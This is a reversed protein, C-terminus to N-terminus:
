WKILPIKRLTWKLLIIDVMFSLCQPVKLSNAFWGVFGVFSSLSVRGDPAAVSSLASTMYSTIDTVAYLFLSYLCTALWAMFAGVIFIQWGGITGGFAAALWGLLRAWFIQM